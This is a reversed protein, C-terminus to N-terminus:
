GSDQAGAAAGVPRPTAIPAQDDRAVRNALKRGYRRSPREILYYSILGVAISSPLVYVLWLLPLDGNRDINLTFFGFFIIPMHYLYVSYSIESFWMMPRNTLPWQVRKPALSIAVAFVLLALPMLIRTAAPDRFVALHGPVSAGSIYSLGVVAAVAAVAIAGMARAHDRPWGTAGLRVFAWAATMGAAFDAFFLPPQVLLRLEDPAGPSGHPPIFAMRWATSVILAIVLGVLPRRLYAAAIFPLLLYFIFDVSLSWMPANVLFGAHGFERQLFTLHILYDTPSRGAVDAIAQNSLLPFAVTIVLLCVYYPPAVRALRRIAFAAVSGFRDDMVVPLFLVFGTTFFLADLALPGCAEYFARPVSHVPTWVAAGGVHYFVVALLAVGRIGHMPPVFKARDVEM